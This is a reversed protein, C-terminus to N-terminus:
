VNDEPARSDLIEPPNITIQRTKVQVAPFTKHTFAYLGSGGGTHDIELIDGAGYNVVHRVTGFPTGDERLVQMGILDDTYFQNPNSLAPMASRPIGLKTGRLLEAQERRSVGEIAVIAGGETRGTIKLAVPNGYEDTLTSHKAFDELPDTLSKVKM